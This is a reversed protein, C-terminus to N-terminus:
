FNCGRFDIIRDVVLFKDSDDKGEDFSSWTQSAGSMTDLHQDVVLIEDVEGGTTPQILPLSTPRRKESVVIELDQKLGANLM